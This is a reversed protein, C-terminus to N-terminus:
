LLVPALERWEDLPLTGREPTLVQVAVHDAGADLHAQVRARVADVDGWAVLTDVLRDSGGDAIDDDTIGFRRLNNMYNPLDLYIAMHGRGIRRAEVPDTELLVAQEPALLKEPGLIERARATHEPPVNYPHAGDAREAALALMKPGLAALVRRPPEIPEAAVYMATDMRELYERMATLPPGYTQGRLGEVMPQHSVGLGLVFRGPFAESITKWGETMTMPDRGYIQAIGTGVVIRSTGGLLLAAHVLPDRGVADPIWIAGYGLEEVEVAVERARAIPQLDLAFTWIGVRGLDM